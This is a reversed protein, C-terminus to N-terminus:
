VSKFRLWDYMRPLLRRLIIALVQRTALMLNRPLGVGVIKRRLVFQQTIGRWVEQQSFGGREFIAVPNVLKVIAPNFALVEAVFGYDAAVCYEVRYRLGICASRSFFMAQHHTFMFEVQRGVPRSQKLLMTGGATREFSDGYVIATGPHHVRALEFEELVSSHALEDGANLFLVFDGRARNLGKNMADYIGTDPASTLSCYRMRVCLEKALEFTGDCSGGDVVLWEVPAKSQVELSKATARLGQADNLVVTVVTLNSAKRM